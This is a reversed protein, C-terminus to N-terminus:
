ESRSLRANPRLIRRFADIDHKDKEAQSRWEQMMKAWSDSVLLVNFLETRLHGKLDNLAYCVIQFGGDPNSPDIHDLAPTLPHCGKGRGVGPTRLSKDFLMEVGSFACLGRQQLVIQRLLVSRCGQKTKKAWLIQEASIEYNDDPM